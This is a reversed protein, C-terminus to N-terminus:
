EYMLAIDGESYDYGVSPETQMGEIYELMVINRVRAIYNDSENPVSVNGAFTGASIDSAAHTHEKPAAGINAPTIGLKTRADYASVGGTGGNEIPLTGTVNSLDAKVMDRATSISNNTGLTIVDGEGTINDQFINYTCNPDKTRLTWTPAVTDGTEVSCDNGIIVNHNGASVMINGEANFRCVNNIASNYDGNLTIGGEDNTMSKNGSILGHDGTIYIGEKNGSTYCGKVTNYNAVVQIGKAYHNSVACNEITCREATTQIGNSYSANTYSARNGEISLDRVVCDTSSLVIAAPNSSTGSFARNLKTSAGNGRLTVGTKNLKIAGAINYTGDLLVIEGGTSPLAAIANNIETHDSTGDCLYDCDKATWGNASTGVTIRSTRKGTANEEILTKVGLNELAADVSTAGTGGKEVPVASTLDSPSHTHNSIRNEIQSKIKSFVYTLGTTDLFKRPM